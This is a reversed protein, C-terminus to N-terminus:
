LHEWEFIGKLKYYYREQEEGWDDDVFSCIEEDIKKVINNTDFYLFSDRYKLDSIDCSCFYPSNYFIISDRM